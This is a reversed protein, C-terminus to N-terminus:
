PSSLARESRQRRRHRLASAESAGATASLARESQKRRSRPGDIRFPLSDTVLGGSSSQFPQGVHRRAGRQDTAKGIDTSAWTVQTTLDQTTADTFM